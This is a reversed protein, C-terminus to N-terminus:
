GHGVADLLRQAGRQLLLDAARELCGLCLVTRRTTGDAMRIDFVAVDAHTEGCEHCIGHDFTM